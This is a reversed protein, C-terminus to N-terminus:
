DKEDQEVTLISRYQCKFVLTGKINEADSSDVRFLVLHQVDGMMVLKEYDRRNHPNMRLYCTQYKADQPMPDMQDGVKHNLCRGCPLEKLKEFDLSLPKDGVLHTQILHRYLLFNQIKLHTYALSLHQDRGNVDALMQNPLQLQSPLLSRGAGREFAGDPIMRLTVAPHSLLRHFEAKLCDEPPVFNGIESVLNEYIRLEPRHKEIKHVHDYIKLSLKKLAHM